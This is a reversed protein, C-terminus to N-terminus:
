PISKNLDIHDHIIIYNTKKETQLHPLNPATPDSLEQLCVALNMGLHSRPCEEVCRGPTVLGTKEVLNQLCNSLVQYTNM